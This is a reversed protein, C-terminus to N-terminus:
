GGPRRSPDLKQPQGPEAQQSTEKHEIYPALPLPFLQRRRGLLVRIKDVTNDSVVYCEQLGGQDDNTRWSKQGRKPQVRAVAPLRFRGGLVRTRTADAGTGLSMLHLGHSDEDETVGPRTLGRQGPGKRGFM